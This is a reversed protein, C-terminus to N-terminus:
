SITYPQKLLLKIDSAELNGKKEMEMSLDPPIVIVKYGMKTLHSVKTNLYGILTGKQTLSKTKPLILCYWSHQQTLIPPKEITSGEKLRSLFGQPIDSAYLNRNCCFIIDSMDNNYPITPGFYVKDYSFYKQFQLYIVRRYKEVNHDPKDTSPFLM